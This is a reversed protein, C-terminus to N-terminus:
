SIIQTVASKPNKQISRKKWRALYGDVDDALVPPYSVVRLSHIVVRLPHSVVTQPYSVLKIRIYISKRVSDKPPQGEVSRRSRGESSRVRMTWCRPPVVRRVDAM